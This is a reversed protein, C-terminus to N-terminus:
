AARLHERPAGLAKRDSTSLETAWVHEILALESAAYYAGIVSGARSGMRADIAAHVQRLAGGHERRVRQVLPSLGRPPGISSIGRARGVSEIPLQQAEDLLTM